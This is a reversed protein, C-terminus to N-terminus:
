VNQPSNMNILKSFVEKASSRDTVSIEVSCKNEVNNLGNLVVVESYSDYGPLIVTFDEYFSSFVSFDKCKKVKVNLTIKKDSYNKLEVNLNYSSGKVTNLYANVLISDVFYTQANLREYMQSGEASRVKVQFETSPCTLSPVYFRTKRTPNQLLQYTAILEGTTRVLDLKDLLLSDASSTGLVDVIVAIDEGIPIRDGYEVSGGNGDGWMEEVVRVSISVGTQMNVKVSYPTTVSGTSTGTNIDLSWKGAMPNKIEYMRFDNVSSLSTPTVYVGNPQKVKVSGASGLQNLTFKFSAVSSDVAFDVQKSTTLSNMSLVPESLTDARELLFNVTNM